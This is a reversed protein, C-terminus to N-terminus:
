FTDVLRLVRMPRECQRCKRVYRPAPARAAKRAPTPWRTETSSHHHTTRSTHPRRSDVNPTWVFHAFTAGISRLSEGRHKALMALPARFTKRRATSDIPAGMSM